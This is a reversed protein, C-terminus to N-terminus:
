SSELVQSSDIKWTGDQQVMRFLTRERNTRGGQHVYVVTADVTGGPGSSVGQVSVRSMGGWFGAYSSYGGATNSQYSPTLRQWGEPLNSPILGYYDIIAQQQAVQEPTGQAVPAASAADGGGSSGSSGSSGSGDGTGTADGSASAQGTSATGPQDATTPAAGGATTAGGDGSRMSLVLAVAVVAGVLLVALGAGILAGRRRRPRDDDDPEEPDDQAEPSRVLV